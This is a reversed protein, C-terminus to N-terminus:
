LEPPPKIIGNEMALMTARRSREILEMASQLIEDYSRTLKAVGQRVAESGVAAAIYAPVKWESMDPLIHEEDLGAEQQYRALARAAEICMEDTISTARVDLSGRFIGPFVMSNNVQNPFDSRGTSVVAAGAEKAEWPWIEPIPNACAFVIPREAMGAVWEKLITGPGPKSMALVADAGEMAERIGGEVCGPNTDMCLQRMDKHMEAIDARNRHLTGKIDCMIMRKPDAGAKILVSATRIGAAGAGVIAIKATELSRATLKLANILGALNVAATGQQDDHWVPIRCEARLRELIYFCKPQELDELNVGGFTPQLWKVAKIIEEPDQTDLCIPYADVGGLYKFLMAKGEMVPLGAEPGINGLGLVRSGDSVVAVANWKLTHEYALERDKQIAKCPAAVGPSYWVSFDAMDRVCAKPSIEIKGKYYPHMVLADEGPKGAKDLLERVKDEM